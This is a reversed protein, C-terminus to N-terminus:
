ETTKDSNVMNWYSDLINMCPRTDEILKIENDVKGIAPAAYDMIVFRTDPITSGELKAIALSIVEDVTGMFREADVLIRGEEDLRKRKQPQDRQPMQHIQQGHLANELHRRLDFFVGAPGHTRVYHDEKVENLHQRLNDMTFLAKDLANNSVLDLVEELPYDQPYWPKTTDITM